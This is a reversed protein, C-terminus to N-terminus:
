EYDVEYKMCLMIITAKDKETIDKPIIIYRYGKEIREIIDNM